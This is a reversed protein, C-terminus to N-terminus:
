TDILATRLAEVAEQASSYEFHWLKKIVDKVHNSDGVYPYKGDMLKQQLEEIEIPGYPVTWETIECIATTSDGESGPVWCRPECTFLLEPFKGKLISGAFDCLKIHLDDFVLVNRPSVDGWIVGRDHVYQLAETFDVAVQLRRAMTPPENKGIYERLNGHPARELRLAWAEEGDPMLEVGICKLICPHPGLAEYIAAERKFLNSTDEAFAAHDYMEGDLWFGAAKLASKSNGKETYVISLGTRGLPELRARIAHAAERDSLRM